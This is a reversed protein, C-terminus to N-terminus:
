TLIYYNLKNYEFIAAIALTEKTKKGMARRDPKALVTGGDTDM